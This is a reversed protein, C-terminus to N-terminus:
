PLKLKFPNAQGATLQAHREERQRQEDLINKSVAAKQLEMQYLLENLLAATQGAARATLDAAAKADTTASAASILRDVDAKRAEIAQATQVTQAHIKRNNITTIDSVGTSELAKLTALAVPDILSPLDKLALLAKLDRTRTMADLQEGMRKYQEFLQLWQKAMEAIQAVQNSSRQAVAAADYVAWQATAITCCTGLLLGSLARKM